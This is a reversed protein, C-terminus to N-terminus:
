APIFLTFEGRYYRALEIYNNKFSIKGTIAAKKTVMKRVRIIVTTVTKRTIVRPGHKAKLLQNGTVQSIFAVRAQDAGIDPENFTSTVIIIINGTAM